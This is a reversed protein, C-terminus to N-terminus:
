KYDSEDLQDFDNHNIKEKVLKHLKEIERKNVGEVGHPYFRHLNVHIMQLENSNLHEIGMDHYIVGPPSQEGNLRRHTPSVFPKGNGHHLISNDIKRLLNKYSSDNLM